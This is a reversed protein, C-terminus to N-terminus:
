GTLVHICCCDGSSFIWLSIWGISCRNHIFLWSMDMSLLNYDSVVAVQAYLPSPILQGTCIGVKFDELLQVSTCPFHSCNQTHGVVVMHQTRFDWQKIRTGKCQLPHELRSYFEFIIKNMHRTPRCRERVKSCRAKPRSPSRNRRWLIVFPQMGTHRWVLLGADTGLSM